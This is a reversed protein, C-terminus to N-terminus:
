KMARVAAALEACSSFRKSPDKELLKLILAELPPKIAENLKSPPEPAKTLHMMLLPVTEAHVFPPRGAFMEYAIVGLAYLDTMPGVSKFGSIQEPAM